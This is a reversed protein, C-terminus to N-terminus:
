TVDFQRGAGFAARRHASPRTRDLGAAHRQPAGARRRGADIMRDPQEVDIEAKGVRWWPQAVLEPADAGLRGPDAPREVIAGPELDDDAPGLLLRPGMGFPQEALGGDVMGAPRDLRAQQRAFGDVAELAGIELDLAIDLRNAGAPQRRRAIELDVGIDPDTGG